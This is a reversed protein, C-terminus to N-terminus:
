GVRTRGRPPRRLANLAAGRIAHQVPDSVPDPLHVLPRIIAGLAAYGRAEAQPDVASTPDLLHVLRQASTTFWTDLDLAHRSAIDRALLDAAARTDTLLGLLTDLVVTPTPAPRRHELEDLASELGTTFPELLTALLIPKSTFHYLVAGRTIGVSAGIEALSTRDYGFQRFQEKATALIRVRVREADAQRSGGSSQNGHTPHSKPTM